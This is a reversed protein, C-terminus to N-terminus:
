EAWLSENSEILALGQDLCWPPLARWKPLKPGTRVYSTSSPSSLVLAYMAPPCSLWCPLSAPHACGAVPLFGSVRSLICEPSPASVTVM